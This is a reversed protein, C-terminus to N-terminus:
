DWRSIGRLVDVHRGVIDRDQQGLLALQAGEVVEAVLHLRAKRRQEGNVRDRVVVVVVGALSGVLVDDPETLFHWRM